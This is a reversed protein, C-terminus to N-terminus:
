VEIVESEEIDSDDEPESHLLVLTPLHEPPFQSAWTDLLTEAEAATRLRQQPDKALMRDIGDLFPGPLDQRISQIPQPDHYRHFHIKKRQARVFHFPPRGALLFDLVCGLSYVDSPAEASASDTAQEPAIYDFSGVIRRDGIVHQENHDDELWRVLGLDLLRARGQPTIVINSPKVDRHVMGSRHIYELANAAQAGWRCVWYPSIPGHDKVLRFLTPGPVYEMILYQVGEAEGSGLTAAIGPHQLRMGVEIERQFRLLDRSQDRRHRSLVKLACFRCENRDYVLYVSGMGGKGLVDRIEFDGLVLGRWTGGLIKKAQFRTLVKQRVLWKAFSTSSEVRETPAMGLLNDIRERRVIGSKAVSILFEDLAITKM